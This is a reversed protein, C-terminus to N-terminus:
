FRARVGLYGALPAAPSIFRPDVGGPGAPVGPANVGTSDGLVGFTAYRADLANEVRGFLEAGPTLQFAGHVGLVAYGPLPRLLNAEDGRVYQSDVVRVDAGVRLRATLSVELGAKFRNAPNGPLRDGRRVPIDGSADRMPHSPSPLRADADFTADLHAYSAYATIRESRFSLSVDGGQRLTGAINTFYGAGLSTAVGYIDDRVATRYLGAAYTLRGGAWDAGGRLGAQLTRSVVQRLTPPDASLSSPLLCPRNPDSCEIESATPARSGEAYGLYGTLGPSLRYALGLAPNLRQFLSTGDLASGRRDHLAIRVRNYRGSATVSLRATIDWTDTLYFGAAASDSRLGVPTANFKQGEPTSIVYGSPQIVRAPDVVGVEVSSAFDVQSVDLAAGATAQNPRGLLPATSSAQLTAGSGLAHLTERDTEGLPVAGGLSLDPVPGGAADRLGTTGDAQCLDTGPAACATFGTTNGNVVSQRDDRVYVAGQLSLVTTASYTGNLVVFGLRNANLQPSTFILRRSVALEQAPAAGEGRLRNDAGSYSLDLTLRDSRWGLDGYLQRVQSGSLDRWGDEDVVKVVLLEGLRAGHGALTLSASRRGFAGGEAEVAGGPDEFGTKMTVVVAGGLANLGYVPNAGVVDIRAIAPDPILDWNVADGFAENIRVGNQYVALGQPTGLVPSAEFGRYLIDPQFPSDLNDNVSVSGLRAELAGGATVAGTRRLDADSLTQVDYPAKALDLHAGPLPSTGIVTVPSVQTPDAAVAPIAAFAAGLAFIAALSGQLSTGTAPAAPRRPRAAGVGV